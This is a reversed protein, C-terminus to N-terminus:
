GYQSTDFIIADVGRSGDCDFLEAVSIERPTTEGAFIGQYTHDMDLPVIQGVDVGFNLAPDNPYACSIAKTPPVVAAGAEVEGEGEAETDDVAVDNSGNLTNCGGLAFSGVMVAAVCVSRFISTGM